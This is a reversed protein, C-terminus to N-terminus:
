GLCNVVNEVQCMFVNSNFWLSEKRTQGLSAMNIYANYKFYLVKLRVTKLFKLKKLTWIRKLILIEGLFDLREVTLEQLYFIIQIHEWELLSQVLCLWFWTLAFGFKLQTFLEAIDLPGSMIGQAGLPGPRFCKCSTEYIWSPEVAAIITKPLWGM